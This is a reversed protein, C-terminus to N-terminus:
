VAARLRIAAPRRAPPRKEVQELRWRRVGDRQGARALKFRRIPVPEEMLPIITGRL